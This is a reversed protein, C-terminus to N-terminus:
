KIYRFGYFQSNREGKFMLRYTPSHLGWHGFKPRTYGYGVKYLPLCDVPYMEYFRLNFM